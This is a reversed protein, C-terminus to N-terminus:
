PLQLKNFKVGNVNTWTSEWRRGDNESKIHIYTSYSPLWYTAEIDDFTGWWDTVGNVKKADMIAVSDLYSLIVQQRVLSPVNEILWHDTILHPSAVEDFHPKLTPVYLGIVYLRSRLIDYVDRNFTLTIATHTNM